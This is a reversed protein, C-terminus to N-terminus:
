SVWYQWWGLGWLKFMLELTFIGVFVFNGIRLIEILEHSMDAHEIALFVTNALVIIM